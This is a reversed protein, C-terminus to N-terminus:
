LFGTPMKVKCYTGTRVTRISMKGAYDWSGSFTDWETGNTDSQKHFGRALM